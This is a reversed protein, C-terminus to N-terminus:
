RKRLLDAVKDTLIALTERIRKITTMATPAYTPYMFPLPDIAGFYGNDTNITNGKADTEKLEFHLHDGSSYGTSDAYGLLQGLGVFDGEHVDMAILHWYRSVYHKGENHHLISVGLGRALDVSVEVVTGECAAHVRQWRLAKLDLGNHGKMMSYVSKYGTPPNLGDCYITKKGTQLDVCAKNEGFAQTIQFPTVPQFLFKM